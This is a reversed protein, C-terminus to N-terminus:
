HQGPEGGATIRLAGIGSPDALLLVGEPSVDAAPSPGPSRFVAVVEGAGQGVGARALIRVGDPEAGLEYRAAARQGQGPRVVTAPDAVPAGTRADFALLTSGEAAPLEAIVAPAGDPTYAASLATVEPLPQWWLTHWPLGPGLDLTPLGDRHAAHELLGAREAPGAGTRTFLPALRLWTRALPPLDVGSRSLHEAATRLAVQPAHLVFGPDALLEPLRGAALAHGTLQAHVYPDARTWRDPGGVPVTDLLAQTLRRHAEVATSHLRTRLEAGVAPHLLRIESPEAPDAPEIFPALLIQGDLLADTLDRGAVASALPGWLTLPLAADDGALALPTLLRRLTLEDAACREAHLDLAQAVDSPCKPPGAEPTVRLSRAALRVVLANRATRALEAALRELDAPTPAFPRRAGGLGHVAQLALGPLDAWPPEDLDIIRVQEPPLEDALWHALPRPLDALLRVGPSQALPSLVSRTARGAEDRVRPAGARDLDTVVVAAPDDEALAAFGEYVEATLRAGPALRDGVRLLLQESTLGAAGFVLPAPLGASPVTAPDLVTLDIRARAVPDCLMLFGAALRSRGSGPAGTLLLVRPAGPAGDRWAALDRLAVARGGVHPHPRHRATTPGTM